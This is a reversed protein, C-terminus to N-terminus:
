VSRPSNWAGRQRIRFGPVQQSLKQSLIAPLETRPIERFVVPHLFKLQSMDAVTQEISDRQRREVVLDEVRQKETLVAALRTNETQLFAVRQRTFDFGALQRELKWERLWGLVGILGVLALLVLYLSSRLRM